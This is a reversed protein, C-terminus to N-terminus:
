SNVPLRLYMDCGSDTRGLFRMQHVWEQASHASPCTPSPLFNKTSGKCISTMAHIPPQFPLNIKRHLPHGPLGLTPPTTSARTPASRSHLRTSRLLFFFCSNNSSAM